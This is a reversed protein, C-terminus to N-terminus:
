GHTGTRLNPEELSTHESQAIEDDGLLGQLEEPRLLSFDFSNKEKIQKYCEEFRELRGQHFEVMAKAEVIHERVVEREVETRVQNNENLLLDMFRMQRKIDHPIMKLERKIQRLGLSLAKKGNKPKKSNDTRREVYGEGKEPLM